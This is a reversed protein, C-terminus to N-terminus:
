CYVFLLYWNFCRIYYFLMNLLLCPNVYTCTYTYKCISAFTHRCIDFRKTNTVLTIHPVPQKIGQGERQDKLYATYKLFMSSEKPIIGEHVGNSHGMSDERSCSEEKIGNNQDGSTCIENEHEVSTHYNENNFSMLAGVGREDAFLATIYM